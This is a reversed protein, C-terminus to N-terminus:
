TIFMSTNLLMNSPVIDMLSENMNEINVYLYLECFKSVNIDAPWFQRAICINM